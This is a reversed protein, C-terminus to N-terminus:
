ALPAGSGNYGSGAWSGFNTMNSVGTGVGGFVNSITGANAMFAGGLSTLTSGLQMTQQADAMQLKAQLLQQNAAFGEEGFALNTNIGFISTGAKGAVQGFAGPLASSGSSNAGANVGRQVATSREILWARIAQRRRQDADFRMAQMRNAEARQQAAIAAQQAENADQGGFFSTVAGGIGLALGIGITIPDM